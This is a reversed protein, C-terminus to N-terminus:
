LEQLAFYDIRLVYLCCCASLKVPMKVPIQIFRRRLHHSICHWVTCNFAGHLVVSLMTTAANLDLKIAEHQQRRPVIHLLRHSIQAAKVRYRPALSANLEPSWPFSRATRARNQPQAASRCAVPPLLLRNRMARSPPQATSATQFAM